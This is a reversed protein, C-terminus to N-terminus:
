PVSRVIRGARVQGSGGAPTRWELEVTISFLGVAEEKLTARSTISLRGWPGQDVSGYATLLPHTGILRSHIGPVPRGTPPVLRELDNRSQSKLVELLDLCLHELRYRLTEHGVQFSSGSLLAGIALVSVALLAVAVAVEALGFGPERTRM